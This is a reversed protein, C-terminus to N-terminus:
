YLRVDRWTFRYTSDLDLWSYQEEDHDRGVEGKGDVSRADRVVVPHMKEVESALMTETSGSLGVLGQIGAVHLRQVFFATAVRSSTSSSKARRGSGHGGGGSMIGEKEASEARSGGLGISAKIGM